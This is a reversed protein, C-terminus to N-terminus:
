VSGEKDLKKTFRKIITDYGLQTAAFAMLGVSVFPPLLQWAAAYVFCLIPMVVTWVWTPAKKIAGKLYQVTGSVCVAVYVVVEWDIVSM